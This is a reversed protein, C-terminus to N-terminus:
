SSAAASAAREGSCRRRIAAHTPACRSSTCESPVQVAYWSSPAPRVRMSVKEAGSADAVVSARRM